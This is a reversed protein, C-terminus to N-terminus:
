VGTNCPCLHWMIINNYPLIAPARVPSSPFLIRFRLRSGLARNYKIIDGRRGSSGVHKNVSPPVNDPLATFASSEHRCKEDYDCIESNWIAHQNYVPTRLPWRCRIFILFDNKTSKKVSMRVDFQVTIVSLHQFNRMIPWRSLLAPMQHAGNQHPYVFTYPRYKFISAYLPNRVNNNCMLAKWAFLFLLPVDVTRCYRM